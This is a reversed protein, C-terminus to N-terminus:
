MTLDILLPVRARARLRCAGASLEDQSHALISLEDQSRALTSLEDREAQAGRTRACALVAREELHQRAVARVHALVRAGRDRADVAAVRDTDGCPSSGQDKTGGRLSWRELGQPSLGIIWCIAGCAYAAMSACDTAEHTSRKKQATKM